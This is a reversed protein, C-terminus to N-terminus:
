MAEDPGVDIGQGKPRGDGDIDTTPADLLTGADVCPSGAQLHFTADAMPDAAFNAGVTFGALANVGAITTVDTGTSGNWDRYFVDNTATVLPPFWFDNNELADPHANQGQVNGQDEYVGYRNKSSGGVLVNNRFRGVSANVGISTRVAVATSVSSLNGSAQGAGDLWNGNVVLEGAAMEAEWAMLGTSKPAIVGFSVNNTITATASLSVIGGCWNVPQLCSGVKSQDFNILNGDIEAISGIQIGWSAGQTSTGARISNSAILTGAGSAWATIGSTNKGQGGTIVNNLVVAIAGPSPPPWDNTDFRIGVAEAVATGPGIDNAVILAGLPDNSPALVEIGVTGKDAAAAGHIVNNSITPTGGDLTIAVSANGDGPNGSMAEVRFGDLATQGTISDDALVGQFDVDLIATDNVKPDRTWGASADYGGYLSVGEALTVKEPYHGKDVYVDVGMGIQLANAIGKAIHQVPSQQTGPNADDGLSESVYTGIGGCTDDPGNQCDNDKGDGCIEAAGPYSSPDADDCDGSCTDIGDGDGDVCSGGSGGAGGVGGGAGGTGTTTGTDGGAGSAGTGTEGGAGTTTTTGGNPAIAFDDGGCGAAATGLAAILGASAIWARM